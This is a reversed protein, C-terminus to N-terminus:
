AQGFLAGQQDGVVARIPVPKGLIRADMTALEGGSDTIEPLIDPPVEFIRCLDDDWAGKRIDCLMTRSANSLDTAHRKGGTLNWLM